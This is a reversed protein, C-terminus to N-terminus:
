LFIAQSDHLRLGFFSRRAAATRASIERDPINENPPSEKELAPSRGERGLLAAMKGLDQKLRICCVTSVCPRTTIRRRALPDFAPVTRTSARSACAAIAKTSGSTLAVHVSTLAASRRTLELGPRVHIISLDTWCYKSFEKARRSYDLSPKQRGRADLFLKCGWSLLPQSVWLKPSRGKAWM